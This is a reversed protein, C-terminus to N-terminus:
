NFLQLGRKVARGLDTNNQSLLNLEIYIDNIWEIKKNCNTIELFQYKLLWDDISKKKIKNYLKFLENINKTGKLNSIKDYFQIIEKDQKKNSLNYNQYKEDIELNKYYETKDAAGGYVSTIKTGCILDYDGWLKNFLIKNNKKVTCNEFTILIIKSNRKTIKKIKGSVSIKQNFELDVINNKLINLKILEDKSLQEISKNIKKLKGIPSSYGNLHYDPGHGLIQKNNYSIQSPGILKIFNIEREKNVINNVIGSIQINNDIEITCLTNAKLATKLGHLGGIKYSMQNSLKKLEQTLKKFTPTIFLQPQQETIDYKYNICNIDFINKKIKRNLCNESEAVSSLLGAGYIKPKNKNGILGYEVTWWNMRSLYASESTYSIKKYATKLKKEYKKIDTKTANINEKIDSLDRIAYYLNMDENSIIAKNAIEGYHILYESYDKNAIIPAHGAAEHVIDPSPTYTLHKHSRMDAAIPLIKLSQFEMFANPPIFGRVCIARWGLKKLKENIRDIKPIKNITIGTKKLGKKYSSHAYQSFFNISIKLIFRWCAHDISTYLDYNQNVIYKKLHNPIYIKNTKM